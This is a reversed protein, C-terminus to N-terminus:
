RKIFRLLWVLLLAGLTAFILQGLLGSAHIGLIGLVFGGLFAGVIGVLINGLAGFGRGKVIVGSLWGALAGILLFSVFGFLSM